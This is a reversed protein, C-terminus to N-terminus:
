TWKRRRKERETDRRTEPFLLDIFREATPQPEHNALGPRENAEIIVYDPYSVEEVIFDLGVVPIKLIKAADMAARAIIPHLSATVDHITGGSHLNATKRVALKEGAELVDLMQHGTALVTRETEMDLPIRSEGDTAAARRRSQKEILEIVTHKGDGRVLPPRRIAAAVVEGNIVIVRLDRGPIYREILVDDCYARANQVAKRVEDARSLDVSIGRGQEGRAPKVVVRGHKALFRATAADDGAQIQDPVNLGAAKLLRRTLAKDDCRILAVASTFDSLSERCSISRGGLSLTFLGARTDEIEVSIGRRRAEDVIIQAYINLAGQQGPGIFLKENIPNKRKMCYVPVRVFGIKEYLSMAEVNGHLVSLDMFSRGRAKFRAALAVVLGRGVGPLEAQPHVALAWLSAGNDPDDFAIRHDVGMVVGVIDAGVCAVLVTVAGDPDLAGCYGEPLTVMSRALYLTNIARDDGARAPRIEVGAPATNADFADLDLRYSLSPDLFLSQPDTALVVQVDRVYFAVDRKGAAEDKLADGVDVPDDFTQGFILRGWGCDVMVSRKMNASAIDGPAGAWHQLSVGGAVQNGAPDSTM